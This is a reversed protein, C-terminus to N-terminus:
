RTAGKNIYVVDMGIDPMRVRERVRCQRHDGRAVGCQVRLQGATAPGYAGQYFNHLRGTHVALPTQQQRCQRLGTVTRHHQHPRRM